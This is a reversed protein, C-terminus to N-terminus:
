KGSRKARTTKTVRYRLPLHGNPDEAGFWELKGATVLEYLADEVSRPANERCWGGPFHVKRTFHRVVGIEGRWRKEAVFSLVRSRLVPGPLPKRTQHVRSM